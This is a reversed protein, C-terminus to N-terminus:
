WAGALTSWLHDAVHLTFVYMHPLQISITIRITIRSRAELTEQSVILSTDMCIVGMLEPM